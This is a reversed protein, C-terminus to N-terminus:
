DDNDCQILRSEWWSINGIIFGVEGGKVLEFCLADIEDDVCSEFTETKVFSGDKLYVTTSYAVREDLSKKAM